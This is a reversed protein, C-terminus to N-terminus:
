THEESRGTFLLMDPAHDPAVPFDILVPDTTWPGNLPNLTLEEGDKEAMLYFEGGSELLDSHSETSLGALMIDTKSYLEILRVTVEGSVPLGDADLFAGAQFKVKMGQEGTIEFGADADGTFLQEAPKYKDMFSAARAPIIEMDPFENYGEKCAALSLAIVGFAAWNIIQKKM